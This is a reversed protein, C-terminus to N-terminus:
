MNQQNLSVLLQIPHEVQIWARGTVLSNVLNARYHFARNGVSLNAIQSHNFQPWSAAHFLGKIQEPLAGSGEIPGGPGATFDMDVAPLGLMLIMSLVLTARHRKGMM